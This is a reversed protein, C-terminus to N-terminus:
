ADAGEAARVIESFRVGLAAALKILVDLSPSREGREVFGIYTRHLGSTEALQQQTLGRQERAARLAQGVGLRSAQPESMAEFVAM